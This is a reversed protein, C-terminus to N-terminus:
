NLPEYLGTLVPNKRTYYYSMRTQVMQDHGQNWLYTKITKGQPRLAEDFNFADALVHEGAAYRGKEIPTSHWLVLSDTESDHIEIVVVCNHLSDLSNVHAVIGLAEVDAPLSDCSLYYPQGWEYVPQSKESLPTLMYTSGEIPTKSLTLYRSTFWDNKKVLYPYHAVAATEWVPAAYDTWGFGLM